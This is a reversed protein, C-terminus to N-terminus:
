CEGPATALVRRIETLLVDEKVPKHLFAAVGAAQAQDRLSDDGRGTIMIVRLRMGRGYDSNLFDLGSIVPLHQDLVLLCAARNGPRFSAAFAAASDYDELDFGNLELLM